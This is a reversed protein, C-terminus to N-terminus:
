ATSPHAAALDPAIREARISFWVSFTSWSSPVLRQWRICFDFLSPSFGTQHNGRIAACPINRAHRMQRSRVARLEQQQGLRYIIIDPRIIRDPEDLGKDVPDVKARRSKDPHLELRRPPRVVIQCIQELEVDIAVQVPDTRASAQFGLGM